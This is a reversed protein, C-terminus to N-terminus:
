LADHEKRRLRIVWCINTGSIIVITYEKAGHIDGNNSCINCTVKGAM